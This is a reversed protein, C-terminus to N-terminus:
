ASSISATVPRWRPFKGCAKVCRASMLATTWRIWASICICRPNEIAWWTTTQHARQGGGRARGAADLRALHVLRGRRGADDHDLYPGARQVPALAPAGCRRPRTRIGHSTAPTTAPGASSLELGGAPVRTTAHAFPPPHASRTATREPWRAGFGSPRENSVADVSGTAPRVASPVSANPPDSSPDLTAIVPAAPPTPLDGDLERM